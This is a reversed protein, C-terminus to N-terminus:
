RGRKLILARARERARRDAARIEELSLGPVIPEVDLVEEAVRAIETFGLTEDLFAQVAVENAANLVAPATGGVELVRTVLRLAPFREPDPAEFCLQGQAILDLSPLDPL